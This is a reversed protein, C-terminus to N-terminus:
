DVCFSYGDGWNSGTGWTNTTAYGYLNGKVDDNRIRSCQDPSLKIWGRAKWEGNDYFGYAFRATEDSNNCMRLLPKPNRTRLDVTNCERNVQRLASSFEECKFGAGVWLVGSTKAAAVVATACAAGESSYVRILSNECSGSEGISRVSSKFTDFTPTVGSSDCKWYSNIGQTVIWCGAYSSGPVTLFATLALLKLYTM